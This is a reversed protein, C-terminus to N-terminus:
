RRTAGARSASSLEVGVPLGRQGGGRREAVPIAREVRRREQLRELPQQPAGSVPRVKGIWREVARGQAPRRGVPQPMSELVVGYVVLDFGNRQAVREAM